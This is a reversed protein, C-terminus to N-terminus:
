QLCRIKRGGYSVAEKGPANNTFCKSIMSPM